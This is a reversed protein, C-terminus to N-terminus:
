RHRVQLDIGRLIPRGGIAVAGDELDLPIQEDTM